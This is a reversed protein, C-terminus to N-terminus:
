VPNALVVDVVAAPRTDRRRLRYLQAGRLTANSLELRLQQDHPLRRLKEILLTGAWFVREPSRGVRRRRPDRDVATAADEPDGPLVVVAELPFGQGLGLQAPLPQSPQDPFHMDGRAAGVTVSSDVGLQGHRHADGDAVLGHELEHVLGPDVPKRPRPAGLPEASHHGRVIEHVALEGPGTRVFEPDRIDRLTARALAPHVAGGNEVGVAAADDAPRDSELCSVVSTM